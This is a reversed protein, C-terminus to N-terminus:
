RGRCGFRPFSFAYTVQENRTFSTLELKGLPLVDGRDVRWFHFTKGYLGIVENMEEVEAIEWVVNPINPYPMIFM